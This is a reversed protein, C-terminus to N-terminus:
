RWRWRMDSAKKVRLRVPSTWDRIELSMPPISLTTVLVPADIAWFTVVTTAVTTAITRSLQCSAIKESQRSGKKTKMVRRTPSSRRFIVLCRWPRSASREDSTSSDSETEPISRPLVIPRPSSRVSRNAPWDLCTASRSTRAVIAPRQRIDDIWIVKPIM